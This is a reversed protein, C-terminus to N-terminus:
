AASLTSLKSERKAEYAAILDTKKLIYGLEDV